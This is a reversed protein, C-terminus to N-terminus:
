KDSNKMNFGLSVKHSNDSIICFFLQFNVDTFLTSQSIHSSATQKVSLRTPCSDANNASMLYSCCMCESEVTKEMATPYVSLLSMIKAMFRIGKGEEEVQM